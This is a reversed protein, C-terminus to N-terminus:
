SSMGEEGMEVRCGVWALMEGTEEEAVGVIYKDRYWSLCQLGSDGIDRGNGWQKQFQLEGLLGTYMGNWYCVKGCNNFIDAMLLAVCVVCHPHAM